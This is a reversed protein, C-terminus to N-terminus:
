EDGMHTFNAFQSFLRIVQGQRSTGTKAFISAMQTRATNRTVGRDEIAMDLSGTAILTTVLHIEAKTLGFPSAALTIADQSPVKPELYALSFRQRNRAQWPSNPERTIVLVAKGTGSPSKASIVRKGPASTAGLAQIARDIEPNEGRESSCLQHKGNIHFRAQREILKAAQQTMDIVRRNTGVIFIPTTLGDLWQRWLTAREFEALLYKEIETPEDSAPAVPKERSGWNPARADGAHMGNAALHDLFVPWSEADKAVKYLCSLLETLQQTSLM